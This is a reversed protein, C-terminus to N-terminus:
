SLGRRQIIKRVAGAPRLADHSGTPWRRCLIGAWHHDLVGREGALHGQPQRRAHRGMAGGIGAQDRCIDVLAVSAGERALAVAHAAGMGHGAGTVIGVKGELKPVM